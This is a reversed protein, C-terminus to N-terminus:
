EVTNLGFKEYCTILMCTATKAAAWVTTGDPVWQPNKSLWSVSENIIFDASMRLPLCREALWLEFQRNILWVDMMIDYIDLERQTGTCVIWQRCILWQDVCDFFVAPGRLRGMQRCYFKVRTISRPLIWTVCNLMDMVTDYVPWQYVLVEYTDVQPYHPNKVLM